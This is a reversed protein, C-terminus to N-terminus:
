KKGKKNEDVLKKFEAPTLPKLNNREMLAKVEAYTRGREIATTAAARIKPNDLASVPTKPAAKAPKGEAAREVEREGQKPAAGGGKAQSRQERMKELSQAAPTESPDLNFLKMSGANLIQGTRLQEDLGSATATNFTSELAMRKAQVLGPQLERVAGMMQSRIQDDFMQGTGLRRQAFGRIMNLVNGMGALRKIEGETVRDKSLIRTFRNMAAQDSAATRQQLLSIVTNADEILGDYEKEHKGAVNRLERTLKAPDGGAKKSAAQAEAKFRALDEKALNSRKTENLRDRDLDLRDEAIDARRTRDQDRDQMERVKRGTDVIKSLTDADLQGSLVEILDENIDGAQIQAVAARVMPEYEKDRL